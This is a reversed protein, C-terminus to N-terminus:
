FVLKAGKDHLLEKKRREKKKMRLSDFLKILYIYFDRVWLSKMLPLLLNIFKLYKPILVFIDSFLYM